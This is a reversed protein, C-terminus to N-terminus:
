VARILLTPFRNKVRYFLELVNRECCWTQLAWFRRQQGSVLRLLFAVKLSSWSKQDAVWFRNSEFHPLGVVIKDINGFAVRASYIVLGSDKTTSSAVLGERSVLVESEYGRGSCKPLSNEAPQRLSFVGTFLDLHILLNAPNPM